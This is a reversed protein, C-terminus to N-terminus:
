QRGTTFIKDDGGTSDFSYNTASDFLIGNGDNTMHPNDARRSTEGDPVTGERLPQGIEGSVVNAWFITHTTEPNEGTLDAISGFVVYSGNGSIDLAGPAGSTFTGSDRANSTIQTLGTGDSNAVYVEYNGDPNGGPIVEARSTFVVRLGGDSVRPAFSDGGTMTLQALGSGDINVVFIERTGDANTGLPDGSGQYIVTSGDDSLALAQPVPNGTTVQFLESGDPKISFIQTNGLPNDGTLDNDSRFIIVSAQPETSLEPDRLLGGTNSTVQSVGSGDTEAVFINSFNGANDGTIDESSVFVVQTGDDNIDFDAFAVQATAPEITVQVLSGLGVDVAFIQQGGDPNQGLPNQNSVFIARSADGSVALDFLVSGTEPQHALRPESTVTPGGGGTGGGGGGGGPIGNNLGTFGGGETCAFLLVLTAGMLSARALHYVNM